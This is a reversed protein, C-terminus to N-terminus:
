FRVMDTIKKYLEQNGAALLKFSITQNGQGNSHYLERLWPQLSVEAKDRYLGVVGGAEEVILKAAAVDHVKVGGSLTIHADYDGSAVRCLDLTTLGLRRQCKTKMLLELIGDDLITQLESGRRDLSVGLFVDSLETVPSSQLRIGNLFAGQGRVASYEEDHFIDRVLGVRVARFTGENMLESMLGLAISFGLFPRPTPHKRMNNSGDVPDIIMFISESPNGSGIIRQGEEESIVVSSKLQYKELVLPVIARLGNEVLQDGYKTKDGSRGITGTYMGLDSSDRVIETVRKAIERAM